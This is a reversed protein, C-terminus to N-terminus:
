TRQRARNPGIMLDIFPLTTKMALTEPFFDPHGFHPHFWVLKAGRRKVEHLSARLLDNDGLDWGDSIIMLTTGNTIVEPYDTLVKALNEGIRTGSGLEIETQRSYFRKVTELSPSAGTFLSTLRSLKTSFVFVETGHFRRCATFLSNIVLEAEKLMSGSVDAMVVFKSRSLKRKRFLIKPMADPNSSLLKALKRWDVYGSKEQSYSSKRRGPLAQNLHNIKRLKRAIFRIEEPQFPAVSPIDINPIKSRQSSYLSLIATKGDEESEEERNKAVNGLIESKEIRPALRDERAFRPILNVGRGLKNLVFFDEFAKAFIDYDDKKKALSSRLALFFTPGDRTTSEQFLDNYCNQADLHESVGVQIGRERLLLVFEQIDNSPITIV